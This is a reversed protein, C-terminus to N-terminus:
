PTVGVFPENIATLAGETFRHKVRLTNEDYSFQALAASSLLISITALLVRILFFRNKLMDNLEQQAQDPNIM